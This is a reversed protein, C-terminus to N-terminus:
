VTNSTKTHTPKLTQLKEKIQSYRLINSNNKSAYDVWRISGINVVEEKARTWATYILNRKLMYKHERTFPIIVARYESGQSKHITLAYALELQERAESKNYIVTREGMYSDEYVVEICTVATEKGDDSETVDEYIADIVGTEGNSIHKENDNATQIVRDGERLYVEEKENITIQQTYKTEPNISKQLVKNLRDVGLLGKRMPTLVAIDNLPMKSRFYHVYDVILNQIDYDNPYEHLVMESHPVFSMDEVDAGSNLKYANTVIPSQEAQRFVKVLKTTPVVNSNIFDRLISGSGVSPLQNVDGVLLINTDSSVNSILKEFLHADVMSSEDIIVFDDEIEVIDKDSNTIRLNLKKHITSAPRKTIEAMRKAAKGTPALMSISADPSLYEIAQVITNVVTTKGTGPGGTIISFPETLAMCIAEEQEEAPKFPEISLKKEEEKLFEGKALADLYLDTELRTAIPTRRDTIFKEMGEIITDEVQLTTRFYVMRKGESNTPTEVIWAEKLGQLEEQISDNIIVGDKEYQGVYGLWKRFSGDYLEDELIAMHGDNMRDKLYSLIGSAIRNRNSAKMEFGLAIKDAYGFYSYDVNTISWPNKQIKEKASSGMKDNVNIATRVPIGFENFFSILNNLNVMQLAKTKVREAVSDPVGAMPLARENEIISELTGLGYLDVLRTSYSHGIGEFSNQIFAKYENLSEPEVLDLKGVIKLNKGYKDNEIMQAVGNYTNGEILSPVNSLVVESGNLPNTNKKNQPSFKLINVKSIKFYSDEYEKMIRIVRFNVNYYENIGYANVM